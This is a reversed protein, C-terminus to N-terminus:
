RGVEYDLDELLDIMSDTCNFSAQKDDDSLDDFYTEALRKAEKVVSAPILLGGGEMSLCRAFLGLVWDGRTEHLFQAIALRDREFEESSV